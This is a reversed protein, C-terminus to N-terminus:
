QEKAMTELKIQIKKSLYEDDRSELESLINKGPKQMMFFLVKKINKDNENVLAIKMLQAKFHKFRTVEQASLPKLEQLIKEFIRDCLDTVSKNEIEMKHKQWLEKKGSPQAIKTAERVLHRIKKQQEVVRYNHTKQKNWAKLENIFCHFHTKNKKEIETNEPFDYSSLTQIIEELQTSNLSNLSCKEPKWVTNFFVSAKLENIKLVMEPLERWNQQMPCVSINFVYNHRQAYDSFYAINRLVTELDANKRIQKYTEKSFSDLSVGIVFNGKELLDKIKENLITANTQVSIACKPNQRIIKEWIKYYIPILFPEGGYFRTNVLHPIYEDLQDMFRNGYFCDSINKGFKNSSISSSIEPRCMICELNCQNSLEFELITPFKKDLPALDYYASAVADFNGNEIKMKCDRCGKSLDNKQLATRLEKISDGNWIAAIKQKNINGYLHTKNLCCASVNGELDFYMSKQPAYCVQKQPGLLRHRNYNFYNPNKNKITRFFLVTKFFIFTKLLANKIPVPMMWSHSLSLIKFYISRNIPFYKKQGNM